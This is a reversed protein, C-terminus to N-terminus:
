EAQRGTGSRGQHQRRVRGAVAPSHLPLATVTCAATGCNRSTTGVSAPEPDFYRGLSACLNCRGSRPFRSVVMWPWVDLGLTRRLTISFPARSRRFSYRFFSLRNRAAASPRNTRLSISASARPRCRTRLSRTHVVQNTTNFLRGFNVAKRSGHTRGWVPEMAFPAENKRNVTKGGPPTSAM